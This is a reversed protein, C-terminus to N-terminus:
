QNEDDESQDIIIENSSNDEPISFGYANLVKKIPSVSKALPNINSTEDTITHNNQVLIMQTDPLISKYIKITELIHNRWMKRDSPIKCSEFEKQAIDLERNLTAGISNLITQRMETPTLYGTTQHVTAVITEAKAYSIKYTRALDWAAQSQNTFSSLKDIAFQVHEPNLDRWEKKQDEPLLTLERDMAKKLKASAKTPEPRKPRPM